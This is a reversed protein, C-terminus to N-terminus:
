NEDDTVDIMMDFDQNMLWSWIMPLTLIKPIHKFLKFETNTASM